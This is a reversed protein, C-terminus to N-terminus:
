FYPPPLEAVSGDGVWDGEEPDWWTWEVKVGIKRAAEAVSKLGREVIVERETYAGSVALRRATPLRLVEIGQVGTRGQSWACEIVKLVVSLSAWEGDLALVRPGRPMEQVAVLWATIGSNAAQPAWYSLKELSSLARWTQPANATALWATAERLTLSRLQPALATFGTLVLPPAPGTTSIYSVCTTFHTLHPLVSPRLFREYAESVAKLAFRDPDTLTLHTLSALLFPTHHPFLAISALSLHTVYTAQPLSDATWSRYWHTPAFGPPACEM